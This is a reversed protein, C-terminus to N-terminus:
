GRDRIVRSRHAMVPPLTDIGFVSNRLFAQKRFYCVPKIPARDEGIIGNAIDAFLPCSSVASTSPATEQNFRNRGDPQTVSRDVVM